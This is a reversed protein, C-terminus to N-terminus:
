STTDPIRRRWRSRFAAGRGKTTACRPGRPLRWRWTTSRGTGRRTGKRRRSGQQRVYSLLRRDLRDKHKPRAKRKPREAGSGRHAGEGDANGDSEAGADDEGSGDGAHEERARSATDRGAAADDETERDETREGGSGLGGLEPSAVEADDATPLDDQLPPVGADDLDRHADRVPMEMLPRAGLVLKAIEGGTTEPMLQHFVANLVYAWSRGDVPRRVTLRGADTDYFAPAPVPPACFANGTLVASAEIRVDEASVAEIESLARRVGTRVDAPEDHLLRAFIDTREALREALESEEREPPGVYDLGVTASDSLRKVGLDAALPWLEAPLRCLAQDLDGDFFGAYWESDHLLLEDPLRAMDTLNLITPAESLRRLDAASCEARGHAAAVAALCTEYVTRDAGAVPASRECHDGAIDLLIDVYDACDPADKVGIAEFLPRFSKISDPVTFAHRGLPQAVWYVQNTRVFGSEVYICRTGGLESITPDSVARENLVQYTSWHPATDRAMCDKLHEIVLRTPPNITVGLDELLRTELRATTRFGLIRAQSRFAEARFPAYLSDPPHWEERDGDAPLCDTQRLDAIADLFATDERWTGYNDCLAYFAEGCAIRADDGPPSNDAIRLIRDVLHRPKVTRRVGVLDLFQHVTRAGPVRSEDLWLHDAEGLVKVLGETRRYTDDPRSWGGDRTPALPLSALLTGTGEDNVLSPHGALEAMLRGYKAPELPGADGFFDPLVNRVYADITQTRVGLKGSVFERGRGSLVSTDLLDARGIPDSFDGPLMARTAPVLGRSSPWIPLDRLSAYVTDDAPRRDDLDALLMYTGRLATPDDRIVEAAGASDLGARIHDAVAGLDLPPVLRGLKPYGAFRRSVVAMGPLLAAAREPDVGAPAAYSRDFAVALRDETVMLPLRKLREVADRAVTGSRGPEPLLEEVIRWLPRYFRAVTADDVRETGAREPMGRELLGVARDLTLLRAGLQGMANRFPRLEESAVPGGVELLANAQDASLPAPPIYVDGPRRVCGDETPVIQAPPATARVREWVGAFCAPLGTDTTAVEYAKGLIEWLQAHGLMKAMGEPDRAIEEAAADLLMENWAQEHQHGGFIVHKRDSEPFFDANIHLPLGTRQETPLYAYLFGDPLLEPEIRLGISVETSRGLPGLRPHKDYLGRAAAAADARLVHWQEVEGSPRFSAILDSGDGRDLECGLLLAGDRRVEATCVHRLFLLSHRLVRRLDDAIKDVHSPGIHSVGLALRTGSDPDRAWPLFFTTGGQGEDPEEMWEGSEPFLTLRIGASRIQPHDTVQYTSLFGIGFRGINESRLLKGGSGVDAIRHYDCAYGTAAKLACRSSDLDGCYTFEGSNRVVLGDDTIDFVVEAARADDANQILELAMVDYGQLGAMHSRINGLLNATYAGRRRRSEAPQQTQAGQMSTGM